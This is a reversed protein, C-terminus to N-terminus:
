WQGYQKESCLTEMDGYTLCDRSDSVILGVDSALIMDMVKSQLAMLKARDSGVLAFGLVARQWTDQGDVEAVHVGFRSQARDIVSRLARRKEKLSHAFSLRLELRAVAVLM